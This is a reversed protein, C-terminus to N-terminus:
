LDRHGLWDFGGYRNTQDNRCSLSGLFFFKQSLGRINPIKAKLLNVFKMWLFGPFPLLRNSPFDWPFPTKLLRSQRRSDDPKWDKQLDRTVGPKAMLYEDMWPYKM